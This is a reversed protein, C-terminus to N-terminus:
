RAHLDAHRPRTGGWVSQYCNQGHIQGLTAWLITAWLINDGLRLRCQALKRTPLLLGDPRDSQPQAPKAGLPHDVPHISHITRLM